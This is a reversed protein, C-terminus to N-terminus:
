FQQCVRKDGVFCHGRERHKMKHGSVCVSTIVWREYDVKMKVWM